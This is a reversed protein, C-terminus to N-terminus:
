KRNDVDYRKTNRNTELHVNTLSGTTVELQYRCDTTKVVTTRWHVIINWRVIKDIDRSTEYENAVDYNPM